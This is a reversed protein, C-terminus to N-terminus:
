TGRKRQKAKNRLCVQCPKLGKGAAYFSAPYYVPKGKSRKFIHCDPRHYVTAGQLSVYELQDTLFDLILIARLSKAEENYGLDAGHLIAHRSLEPIADGHDFSVYLLDQILRRFATDADPGFGHSLLSCMYEDRKKGSMRGTHRYSQAIVGEIQPLIAPVSLTYLGKNHAVVADTLIHIQPALCERTQWRKLIAKVFGRKRYYRVIGEAVQSKAEGLPVDAYKRYVAIIFAGEADKSIPWGCDYLFLKGKDWELFAGRLKSVVGDTGTIARLIKERQWQVNDLLKLRSPMKVPKLSNLISRKAMERVRAIEAIGSVM